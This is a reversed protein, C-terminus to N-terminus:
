RWEPFVGWGKREKGIFKEGRPATALKRVASLPLVDEGEERPLREKNWCSLSELAKRVRVEKDVNRDLAGLVFYCIRIFVDSM